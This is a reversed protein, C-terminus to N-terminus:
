DETTKAYRYIPRGEADYATIMNGKTLFRERDRLIKALRKARGADTVRRGAMHLTRTYDFVHNGEIAGSHLNVVDQEVDLWWDPFPLSVCPLDYGKGCFDSFPPSTIADGLGKALEKPTAKRRRM